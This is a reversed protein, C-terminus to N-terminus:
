STQQNNPRHHLLDALFLDLVLLSFRAYHGGIMSSNSMSLDIFGNGEWAQISPCPCSLSKLTCTFMSLSLYFERGTLGQMIRDMNQTFRRGGQLHQSQSCCCCCCVCVRLEWHAATSVKLSVPLTTTKGQLKQSQLNQYVFLCTVLSEDQSVNEEQPM